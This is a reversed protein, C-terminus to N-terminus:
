PKAQLARESERPSIKLVAAYFAFMALFWVLQPLLTIQAAGWGFLKPNLTTAGYAWMGTEIAYIEIVFSQLQGWLQMVLLAAWSFRSEITKGFSIRSLVLGTLFLGADWICVMVLIPLIAYIPLDSLDQADPNAAGGPAIPYGMGSFTFGLEWVMGLCGGVLALCWYYRPLRGSWIGAILGGLIVIAGLLVIM